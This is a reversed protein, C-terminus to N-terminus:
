ARMVLKKAIKIDKTPLELPKIGHEIMHLSQMWIAALQNYVLKGCIQKNKTLNSFHVSLVKLSVDILTTRKLFKILSVFNQNIKFFRMDLQM